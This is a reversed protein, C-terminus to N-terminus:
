AVAPRPPFAQAGARAVLGCAALSGAVLLPMEWTWDLVTAFAIANNIAHLAIAPYLSGTKAYVVCLGFGFVALPLLATADASGLHIAGFVLGTIVAAPWMGKWNRLATFFFGRFFFEEVVPALVCVLIAGFVLATTSDKIGLDDVQDEAGDLGVLPAWIAIFVLFGAYAAAMWGIAPLIRTGRLGFQHAWVPGSLRAFLVAAAVFGLDQVFTAGLLVGPPTDDADLDYGFGTAIIAVVLGGITAVVLATILALPGAWPPWGREGEPEPPEPAM